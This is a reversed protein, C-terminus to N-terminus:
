ECCTGSYESAQLLLDKEKGALVLAMWERVHSMCRLHTAEDEIVLRPNFACVLNAYNHKFWEIDAPKGTYEAVFASLPRVTVSRAAAQESVFRNILKGKGEEETEYSVAALKACLPLLISLKPVEKPPPVIRDSCCGVFEM